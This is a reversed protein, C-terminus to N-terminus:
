AVTGATKLSAWLSALDAAEATAKADAAKSAAFLASLEASADKNYAVVAPTILWAKDTTEVNSGKM